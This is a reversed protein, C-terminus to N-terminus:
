KNNKSTQQPVFFQKGGISIPQKGALVAEVTSGAAKALAKIKKRREACGCGM